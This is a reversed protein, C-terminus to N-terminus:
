DDEPVGDPIRITCNSPISSMTRCILLKKDWAVITMQLLQHRLSRANLVIRLPSRQRWLVLNSQLLSSYFIKIANSM